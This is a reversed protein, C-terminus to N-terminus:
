RVTFFIIKLIVSGLTGGVFWKGSKFGCAKCFLSVITIFLCIVFGYASIYLMPNAFFSGICQFIYNCNECFAIIGDM